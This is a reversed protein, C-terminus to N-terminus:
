VEEAFVGLPEDSESVTDAATLAQALKWFTNQKSQVTRKIGEVFHAHLTPWVPTSDDYFSSCPIQARPKPIGKSRAGVRVEDRVEMERSGRTVEEDLAVECDELVGVM